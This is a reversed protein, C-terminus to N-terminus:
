ARGGVSGRRPPAPCSPHDGADSATAPLSSETHSDKTGGKKKQPVAMTAMFPTMGPHPGKNDGRQPQERRARQEDGEGDPAAPPFIHASAFSRAAAADSPLPPHLRASCGLLVLCM